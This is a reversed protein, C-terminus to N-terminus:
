FLGYQVECDTQLCIYGEIQAKYNFLLVNYLRERKIPLFFNM